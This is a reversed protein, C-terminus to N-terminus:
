DQVWSPGDARRAQAHRLTEAATAVSGRSRELRGQARRLRAEDRALSAMADAFRKEAKRESRLLEQESKAGATLLKEALIQTDLDQDDPAM